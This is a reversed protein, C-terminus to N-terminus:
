SQSVHDNFHPGIPFQSLCAHGLSPPQALCSEQVVSLQRRQLLWSLPQRPLPQQPHQEVLEQEFSWFSFSAYFVCVGDDYCSFSHFLFKDKVQNENRNSAMSGFPDHMTQREVHDYSHRLM